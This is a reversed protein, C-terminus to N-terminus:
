DVKQPDITALDTGSVSWTTGYLHIPEARGRLAHHGLDAFMRALDGSGEAHLADIFSATVLLDFGLTRCSAEVRSAINVTDGVVTLELRSESGIDGQVIPGHHIGVAMRIEEDGSQLRRKNWDAISHLIKLAGRAANTADTSCPLPVGFVAMLGDGLFKDIYGNESFVCKSLLAQLDRLFAIVNEPALRACYATFGVMDVFLVAAPQYHTLSLPTDMEAVEDVLEPAFFRALNARQRQSASLRENASINELALFTTIGIAALGMGARLIAADPFRLGHVLVLSLITLATSGAAAVMVSRRNLGITSVLVVFVYLVAVAFEFPTLTDIAFIGLALAFATLQPHNPRKKNAPIM